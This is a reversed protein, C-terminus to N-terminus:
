WPVSHGNCDLLKGSDGASAETMVALMGNVSRDDPVDGAKIHSSYPDFTLFLIGDEALDRAFAMSTMNLADKSLRKKNYGGEEESDKPKINIVAARDMRLKGQLESVKASQRLLPLFHQTVMPVASDVPVEDDPDEKSILVLSKRRPGHSNGTNVLVTLGRGATVKSTVEKVIEVAIKCQRENSEDLKIVHIRSNKSRLKMLDEAYNPDYCTAFVLHPPKPQKILQKVFELGLGQDAGTVLVSYLVM